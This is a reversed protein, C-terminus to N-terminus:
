YVGVIGSETVGNLGKLLAKMGKRTMPDQGKVLVQELFTTAHSTACVQATMLFKCASKAAKRRKDLPQFFHVHSSCSAMFLLKCKLSSVNLDASGVQVATNFEDKPKRPLRAYFHRGKLPKDGRATTTDSVAPHCTDFLRWAGATGCVVGPKIKQAKIAKDQAKANRAAAVLAGPLFAAAGSTTLDYEAPTVSHDVLDSMCDTDTADYGMRFHVGWPNVPFVKKDPVHPTSAPGFAPGQGYRSHGEYVVFSDATNLSAAFEVMTFMLEVEHTAKAAGGKPFTWISTSGAKLDCKDNLFNQLNFGQGVDRIEVGQAIIIKQTM